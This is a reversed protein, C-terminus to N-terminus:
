SMMPGFRGLSYGVNLLAKSGVTKDLWSICFYLLEFSYFLSATFAIRFVYLLVAEDKKRLM